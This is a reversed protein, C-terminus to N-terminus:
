CEGFVSFTMVERVGFVFCCSVNPVRRRHVANILCSFINSLIFHGVAVSRPIEELFAPTWRLFKNSRLQLFKFCKM